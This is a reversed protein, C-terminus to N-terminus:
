KCGPIPTEYSYNEGAYPVILTGPRCTEIGTGDYVFWTLGKGLPGIANEYIEQMAPVLRVILPEQQSIKLETRLQGNGTSIVPASVKRFEFYGRDTFDAHAIGIILNKALSERVLENKPENGITPNIWFIMIFENRSRRDQILAYDLVDDTPNSRWQRAESATAGFFTWILVGLFASIVARM